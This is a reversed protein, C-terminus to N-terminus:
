RFHSHVIQTVRKGAKQDVRAATEVFHLLYQTVGAHCHGLTVAVQALVAQQPSGTMRATHDHGHLASSLIYCM